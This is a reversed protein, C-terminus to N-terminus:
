AIIVEGIFDATVLREGDSFEIDGDVLIRINLKVITHGIASSALLCLRTPSRTSRNCIILTTSCLRDFDLKGLVLSGLATLESDMLNFKLTTSRSGTDRNWSGGNCGM